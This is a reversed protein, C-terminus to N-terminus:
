REVYQQREQDTIPERIARIEQARHQMERGKFTLEEAAKMADTLDLKDAKEDLKKIADEIRERVTVIKGTTGEALTIVTSAQGERQDSACGGVLALMFAGLLVLGSKM